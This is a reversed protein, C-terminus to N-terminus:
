LLLYSWPALIRLNVVTNVVAQWRDGDQALQICDLRGWGIERLNMRLGDEKTKWTTEKRRVKGDFGHVCEEGM